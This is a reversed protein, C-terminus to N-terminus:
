QGVVAKICEKWSYSIIASSRKKQQAALRKLEAIKAAQKKTLPARGVEGAAIRKGIDSCWNFVEAHTM